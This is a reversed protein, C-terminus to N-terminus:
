YIFYNQVQPYKNLANVEGQCSKKITLHHIKECDEIRKSVFSDSYYCYDAELSNSAFISCEADPDIRQADPNDRFVTNVAENYCDLAYHTPLLLECANTDETLGAYARICLARKQRTPPGFGYTIIKQCYSVDHREAAVKAIGDSSGNVSYGLIMMGLPILLYLLILTVFFIVIVRTARLAPLAIAQVINLLFTLM